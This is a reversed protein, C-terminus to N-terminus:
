VHLGNLEALMFGSLIYRWNLHWPLKRLWNPEPNNVTSQITNLSICNKPVVGVRSYILNQHSIIRIFYNPQQIHVCNLETPVPINFM